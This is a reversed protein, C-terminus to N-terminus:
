LTSVTRKGEVEFTYKLISSIISKIANQVRQNFPVKYIVSVQKKQPPGDMVELHVLMRSARQTACCGGKQSQSLEDPDVDPVLGSSLKSLKM